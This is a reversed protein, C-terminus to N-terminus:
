PPQISVVHFFVFVHDVTIFHRLSNTEEAAISVAKLFSCVVSACSSLSKQKTQQLTARDTAVTWAYDPRTASLLASPTCVHCDQLDKCHTHVGLM